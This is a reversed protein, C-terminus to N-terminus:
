SKKIDRPNFHQFSFVLDRQYKNQIRKKKNDLHPHLTM